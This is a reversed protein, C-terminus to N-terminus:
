SLGINHDSAVIQVLGNPRVDTLLLVTGAASGNVTQFRITVPVAAQGTKVVTVTVNGDAESVNYNLQAFSITM